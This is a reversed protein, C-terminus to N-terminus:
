LSGRAKPGKAKPADSKKPSPNEDEPQLHEPGEPLLSGKAKPGRGKRQTMQVKGSVNQSEENDLLTGRAKPGKESTAKSSSHKATKQNRTESSTM